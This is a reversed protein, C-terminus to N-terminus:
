TWLERYTQGGMGGSMVVLEIVMCGVACAGCVREGVGGGDDSGGSELEQRGEVTECLEEREPGDAEGNEAYDRDEEAPKADGSVSQVSSIGCDVVGADRGVVWQM